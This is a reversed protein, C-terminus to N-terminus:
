VDFLADLGKGPGGRRPKLRRTDLTSLDMSWAFFGIPRAEAGRAKNQTGSVSAATPQAGRPRVEHSPWDAKGRCKTGRPHEDSDDDGHFRPDLALLPSTHRSTHIGAKAPIVLTFVIM